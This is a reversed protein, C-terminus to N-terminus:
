DADDASAGAARLAEAYAGGLRHRSVIALLTRGHRDRADLDRGADRFFRLFRQFDAARMSRYARLLCHFDDPDDDHSRVALFSKVREDDWVEDIVKSKDKRM